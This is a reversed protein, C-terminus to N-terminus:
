PRGEALDERLNQLRDRQSQVRVFESMLERQAGLSGASREIGAVQLVATGVAEFFESPDSGMVIVLRHNAPAELFGEPGFMIMRRGLSLSGQSADADTAASLSGDQNFSAATTLSDAFPAPVWGSAFRTTSLFSGQGRVTIRYVSPPVQELPDFVGLYYVQQIEHAPAQGGVVTAAAAGTIAYETPTCGLQLV